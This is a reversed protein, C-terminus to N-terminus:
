RLMRPRTLTNQTRQWRCTPTLPPPPSQPVCCPLLAYWGIHIGNRNSMALDTRGDGNLDASILFAPPYANTPDFTQTLVFTNNTTQTFYATGGIRGVVVDTDGDYDYDYCLVSYPFTANTILHQTWTTGNDSVKYWSVDGNGSLNYTTMCVDTWGDRDFDVMHAYASPYTTTINTLNWSTVPSGGM